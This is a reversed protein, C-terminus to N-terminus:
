PEEVEHTRLLLLRQRDKHRYSALFASRIALMHEDELECFPKWVAPRSLLYQEQHLSEVHVLELAQLLAVEYRLTSFDAKGLVSGLLSVLEKYTIPATFWILDALLFLRQQRALSLFGEVDQFKLRTRKKRHILELRDSVDDLGKTIADLRTYVMPKFKSVRDLKKIPGERIFSDSDQFSVDNIALTIKALQNDYAFAGLEAKAGDSEVIIIVADASEALYGELTLLDAGETTKRIAEFAQEALFFHCWPFHRKGYNLFDQRACHGADIRAGCVFVLKSSAMLWLEGHTLAHQLLRIGSPSFPSLQVSSMSVM